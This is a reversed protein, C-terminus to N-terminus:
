SSELTEIHHLMAKALTSIYEGPKEHQKLQELIEKASKYEKAQIHTQAKLLKANLQFPSNELSAEETYQKLLNIENDDLNNQELKLGAWNIKALNHAFSNKESSNEIITQYSILASEFKNQRSYLGAKILRAIDSINYSSSAIYNFSEIALDPKERYTDFSSVLLDGLESTKVERKYEYWNYAAAALIIFVVTTIVYPLSKYIYNLKKEESIETQLEEELENM